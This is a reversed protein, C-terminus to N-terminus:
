DKWGRVVWYGLGAVVLLAGGAIAAPILEDAGLRGGSHLVPVTGLGLLWAGRRVNVQM